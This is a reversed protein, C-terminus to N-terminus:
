ARRRYVVRLIWAEYRGAEPDSASRTRFREFFQNSLVELDEGRSGPGLLHETLTSETFARMFQTYTEAYAERDGSRELTEWYPNAVEEVDVHVSELIEALPGAKEVPATAERESRCYVPFVYRDLVERDLLGSDALELAVEWMEGLLKAASVRESGDADNITAIGQVLLCGGPALESARASLFRQWDAAAQHELASRPAAPLDAFYMGAGPETEPQERFWHAANSCMGLDVTSAPLVQDFFSGACALPYVTAGGIGLYGNEGTVNRFLQTFDNTPVDNHVAVIERDIGREALARLVTSMAHSSTAGTSSGYDAVVIPGSSADLDLEAALRSLLPDGAEIVRRQYESHLDYFGDAKM